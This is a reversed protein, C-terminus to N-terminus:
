FLMQELGIAILIMGGAIAAKGSINKRIFFEAARNGASLAIFSLVASLFGVLLANLGIMGASLGGGINNISLAIGLLTAEKFDLHKPNDKDADDSKGLIHCIGKWRKQFPIEDCKDGVYQDLIMKAGVATLLVMAIVSSIKGLSGSIKAGSYAALFSIVFTILSIWLNVPTTIKIGRISYAIRAGINDVNNALAILFAYLFHRM